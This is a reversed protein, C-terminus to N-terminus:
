LLLINLEILEVPFGMVIKFMELNIQLLSVFVVGFHFLRTHLLLIDYSIQFSSTLVEFFLTYSGVYFKFPFFLSENGLDLIPFALIFYGLYLQTFEVGNYM